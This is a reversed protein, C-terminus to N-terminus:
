DKPLEKWECQPHCRDWIFKWADELNITTEEFAKKLEPDAIYAEEFMTEMERRLAQIAKELSRSMKREGEKPDTKNSQTELGQNDLTINTRNGPLDQGGSEAQIVRKVERVSSGREIQEALKQAVRWILSEAPSITSMFVPHTTKVNLRSEEGQGGAHKIASLGNESSQNDEIIRVALDLTSSLWEGSDTKSGPNRM